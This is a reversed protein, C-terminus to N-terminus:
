FWMIKLLPFDDSDESDDMIVHHFDKIIKM